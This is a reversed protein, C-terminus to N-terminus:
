GFFGISGLLVLMGYGLVLGIIGMILGSKAMYKQEIMGTGHALANPPTSIPLIMAVSAAV